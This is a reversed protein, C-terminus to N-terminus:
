LRPFRARVATGLGSNSEIMFEGQASEARERMLQLGFHREDRRLAEDFGRGDDEVTLEIWEDTSRLSVWVTDCSAHKVANQMAERAIQYLLLENEADLRLEDDLNTVFLVGSDQHLHNALLSVTEVLGARGVTSHRLDRIVDRMEDVAREAAALVGPVDDDLALLHGSRLDERLVQARLTVGYLSQLVEDHLAEAIREREDRREQAIREDVNRLAAGRARLARSIELLGRRDVFVQRGLIVPFGVAVLGIPGTRAVLEALFLSSLGFCGYTLVHVAPAGIAMVPLTSRVPRGTRAWVSTAVLSVNIVVDVALAVAAAGLTAPWEGLRGGVLSFAAAALGASLAIQSRNFLSTWLSVQRRLERIDFCAVFGLLGAPLPGYLMGAALLLPLDMSLHVGKALKVPFAGAIAVLAIWALFSPRVIDLATPKAVLSAVVLLGGICATLTALLKFRWPESTPSQLKHRPISGTATASM